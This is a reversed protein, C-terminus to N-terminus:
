ENSIIDLVQIIEPYLRGKQGGILDYFLRVKFNCSSYIEKLTPSNCEAFMEKVKVGNVVSSCRAIIGRIDLSDLFSVHLECCELQVCSM